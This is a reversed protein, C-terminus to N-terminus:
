AARQMYRRRHVADERGAFEPTPDGDVYQGVIGDGDRRRGPARRHVETSTM